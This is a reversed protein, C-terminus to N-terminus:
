YLPCKNNNNKVVPCRRARRQSLCGGERPSATDRLKLHPAKPLAQSRTNAQSVAADRGGCPSVCFLCVVEDLGPGRQRKRSLSVSLRASRRGVPFASVPFPQATPVRLGACPSFLWSGRPVGSIFSLSRGAAVNPGQTLGCRFGARSGFM